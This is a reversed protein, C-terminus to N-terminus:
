DRREDISHVKGDRIEFTVTKGDVEWDTALQSQISGTEAEVSLLNDAQTATM